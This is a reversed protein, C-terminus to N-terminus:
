RRRDSGRHRSRSRQLRRARRSARGRHRRRAPQRVPPPPEPPPPPVPVVTPAPPTPAPTPRGARNGAGAVLGAAGLRGHRWARAASQAGVRDRRAADADCLGAAHRAGAGGTACGGRAAARDAAAARRRRPEAALRHLDAASGDETMEHTRVIHPTLLMIIDTQDITTTTARSCSSSSGARPDRRSIGSRRGVDNEQLLGALLNSEGDRLRLRTTVTRQGFSPMTSARSRRRRRRAVSNDLTLDLIIDGELTVRPTMDINM